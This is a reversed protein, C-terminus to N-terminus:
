LETDALEAVDLCNQDLRQSPRFSPAAIEPALDNFILIKRMADKRRIALPHDAVVSRAGIRFRGAIVWDPDCLWM